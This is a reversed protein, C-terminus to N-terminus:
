ARWRLSEAPGAKAIRWAPIFCALGAVSGLVIAVVVITPTDDIGVGYLL